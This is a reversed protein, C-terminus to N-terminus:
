LTFTRQSTTRRRALNGVLAKPYEPRLLSWIWRQVLFYLGKNEIAFTIVYGHWCDAM